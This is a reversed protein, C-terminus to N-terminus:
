NVIGIKMQDTMEYRSQDIQYVRFASSKNIRRDIVKEAYEIIDKKKLEIRDLWTGCDENLVCRLRGLSEQFDSQQYVKEAQWLLIKTREHKNIKARTNMLLHLCCLGCYANPFVAQITMEISNARDSIIVLSLIDWIYKKLEM